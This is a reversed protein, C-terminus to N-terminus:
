PINEVVVLALLLIIGVVPMVIAMDRRWHARWERYDSFNKFRFM